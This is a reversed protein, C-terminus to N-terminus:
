GALEAIARLANRWALASMDPYAHHEREETVVVTTGGDTAALEFSIRSDELRFAFARGPEAREVVGYSTAHEGWWFEVRGGEWPEVEAGGPSYWECLTGAETILRWVGTPSVPVFGQERVTDVAAVTTVRPRDALTVRMVTPLPHGNVGNSAGDRVSKRPVVTIRRLM